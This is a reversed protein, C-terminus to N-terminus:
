VTLTSAELSPNGLEFKFQQNNKIKAWKMTNGAADLKGYKSGIPPSINLLAEGVESYDANFGKESQKFYEIISNKFGSAVAGQIGMGRLFSDSITNLTYTKTKAIKEESVDEDNLLMAFLASGM